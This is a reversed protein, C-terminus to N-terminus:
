RKGRRQIIVDTLSREGKEKHAMTPGITLKRITKEKLTNGSTTLRRFRVSQRKGVRLLLTQHIQRIPGRNKQGLSYRGNIWKCVVNSDGCMQVTPGDVRTHVTTDGPGLDKPTKDKITKGIGKSKKKRHVISRKTRDLVFTVVQYKDDRTSENEHEWGIKKVQGNRLSKDWVNRRNHWEWKHKWRTHNESEREMM